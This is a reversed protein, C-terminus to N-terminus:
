GEEEEEEEEEGLVRSGSEIGGHGEGACPAPTISCGWMERM